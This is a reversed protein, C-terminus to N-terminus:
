NTAKSMKGLQKLLLNNEMFNSTLLVKRPPNAHENECNVCSCEDTCKKNALFCECYKKMCGSKKCNCGVNQKKKKNSSVQTPIEKNQCDTCSCKSGCKMGKAFCDCYHKICMSKACKCSVKPSSARFDRVSFDPIAKISPRSIEKKYHAFFNVKEEPVFRLINEQPTINELEDQFIDFTKTKIKKRITSDGMLKYEMKSPRREPHNYRTLLPSKIIPSLNNLCFKGFSSGSKSNSRSHSRPPSNM